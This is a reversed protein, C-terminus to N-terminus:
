FQLIILFTPISLKTQIYGKTEEEDLSSLSILGHTSCEVIQQSTRFFKLIEVLPKM